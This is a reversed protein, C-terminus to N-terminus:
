LEPDDRGPAPMRQTPDVGLIKLATRLRRIQPEFDLKYTGGSEDFATAGNTIVLAYMAHHIADVLRADREINAILQEAADRAM